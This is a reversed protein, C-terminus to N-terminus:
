VAQGHIHLAHRAWARLSKPNPTPNPNTKRLREAWSGEALLSCTSCVAFMM